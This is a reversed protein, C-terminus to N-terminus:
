CTPSQSRPSTGERRFEPCSPKFDVRGLFRPHGRNAIAGTDARANREHRKQKPPPTQKQKLLFFGHFLARIRVGLSWLGLRLRGRPVEGGLGAAACTSIAQVPGEGKVNRNGLVLLQIDMDRRRFPADHGVFAFARSVHSCNQAEAIPAHSQHGVSKRCRRDAQLLISSSEVTARTGRVM